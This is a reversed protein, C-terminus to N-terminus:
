SRGFMSPLSHRVQEEYEDVKPMIPLNRQERSSGRSQLMSRDGAAGEVGARDDYGPQQSPAASQALNVGEGGVRGM